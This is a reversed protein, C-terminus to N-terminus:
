PGKCTGGLKRNIRSRVDLQLQTWLSPTGWILLTNMAERSRQGPAQHKACNRHAKPYLEGGQTLVIASGKLYVASYTGPLVHVPTKIAQQPEGSELAGKGWRLLTVIAENNTAREPCKNSPVSERKALLVGGVGLICLPGM